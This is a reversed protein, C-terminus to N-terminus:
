GALAAAITRHGLRTFAPNDASAAVIAVGVALAWGRGRQWTDDDVDGVSARFVVRAPAPLLMWAVGLDGAPDGATMDGFDIVGSVAGETVLINGPHLDGHLWRPPGAWRPTTVLESWCDVIAPGDVEPGLRDVSERMREDRDALPVGRVPNPPADPPAPVGHLAAVFGGLSRAAADPDAPPAHLAVEGGLWPVVSWAWPYGAGPRGAHVPVPVPLPLHPALTPLWRQEHEVLTAAVARRPLRVCLDDGLRFLVNDWGTAAEVLPLDALDPRQEALLARVLAADVEVEAAPTDAAPM